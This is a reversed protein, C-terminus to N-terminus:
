YLLLDLMKERIVEVAPVVANMLQYNFPVPVAPAAVRVVPGDLDMFAEQAITAAIEAGFGALGIDEHVIIVKSTKHVSDLVAEKDWPVITRLDIIEVEADLQQAASECREVMAGWTVVTLHDGRSIFRAKGFPIVYHDGPYPRRAWAADMQARHEFFLTPDHGRLASRLLGVADEANSPFAIRWGVSHAFAAEDTVSHWPDGVKRGYGGALRVVIPAAFNNATRWRLSGANHLQEMAPDAYKRFQIEPAPVLGALAMGVARGIIGEESLSTDFVRQEGFTAQLDMTAIHVGGKKGVDEGFILLRPNLALESELTLRIAEVLNIRRPSIITPREDGAPLTIHEAALGGVLAPRSEDAWVHDIVNLTDPQNQARAAECAATVEREVEAALAQWEDEGLLAPSLYARLAPLPDRAWEEELRAASKYSQNDHGSHGSLRPVELRLMAPGAGGRVHAVAESILEATIATVIGSGQCVKLNAFSRLNEVINGDPTQLGSEVSIAFGNDEILFLVPLRLTTAMTLASWFGNTAVSGEGGCVAVMSGDLNAEGLVEVRYRIAQAWGIAPTFQSGVDGAMPLITARGRSPMNFVVGVDRGASVGGVRAMDSAFAEEITLGSGLMFPRSRYYVGAADFPRDLLGSLLAQGLEHGRASFQYLVEGRPYLEQEEIDDIM